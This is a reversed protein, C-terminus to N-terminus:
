QVAEDRCGSRKYFLMYAQCNAVYEEDILHVWPDDFLYWQGHCKVYSVYHGGTLDRGRHSVVAYLEYSYQLRLARVDLTQVLNLERCLSLGPEAGAEGDDCHGEDVDCVGRWTEDKVPPLTRLGAGAPPHRGAHNAELCVGSPHNANGPKGHEGTTPLPKPCVPHTNSASPPGTTSHHATLAPAGTDGKHFDENDPPRQVPLPGQVPKEGADWIHPHPVAGVPTLCVRKADSRNEQTSTVGPRKQDCMRSLSASPRVSYRNRLLSSTTFPQMDLTTIPFKVRVDLKRTVHRHHVRRHEFRKLHFVMVPPLQRLSMQKVASQHTHCRPCRWQERLTLVEPQVYRRLCAVLSTEPLVRPQGRDGAALPEGQKPGERSRGPGLSSGRSRGRGRTHRVGRRQPCPAQGNSPGPDKIGRVQPPVRGHPGEELDPPNFDHSAGVMPPLDGRTIAEKMMKNRLCGKKLHKNKCTHCVGCRQGRGRGRRSPVRSPVVRSGSNVQVDTLLGLGGALGTTLPSRPVASSFSEENASDSVGGTLPPTEQGGTRMSSTLVDSLPPDPVPSSHWGGYHYGQGRPAEDQLLTSQPTLERDGLVGHAPSSQPVGGLVEGATESLPVELFSTSGEFPTSPELLMPTGPNLTLSDQRCPHTGAQPVGTDGRASPGVMQSTPHQVGPGAAMLAGFSVDNGSSTRRGDPSEGVCPSRTPDRQHATNQPEQVGPEPSPSPAFGFGWPGGMAHPEKPGQGERRRTGTPDERLKIQETPTRPPQIDLSIDLFPDYTTSTYGCRSCTVDSRWLGRLALDVLSNRGRGRHNLPMKVEPLAASCTPSSQPDRLGEKISVPGSPTTERTRGGLSTSTLCPATSQMGSAGSDRSASDDPWCSPLLGDSWAGSMDDPHPSPSPGRSATELSSLSPPGEDELAAGGDVVSDDLASLLSLYFEHADQQQYGALADACRWWCYLFYAPSYPSRNGSYMEQFVQDMQCSLCHKFSHRCRGVPHGEGLYFDKLLPSHVVVQLISNMFCTNGLNNLGRLGLPLGDAALLPSAITPPIVDEVALDTDEVLGWPDTRRLIGQALDIAQCTTAQPPHGAALLQATRAELVARDFRESYVYDRCILCYVEARAPDVLLTHGCCPKKDGSVRSWRDGCLMCAMDLYTFGRPLSRQSRCGKTEREGTGVSLDCLKQVYVSVVDDQLASELESLHPCSTCLPKM